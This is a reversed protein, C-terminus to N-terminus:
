RLRHNKFKKIWEFLEQEGKKLTLDVLTPQNPLVCEMFGREKKGNVWVTIPGEWYSIIGFNVECEKIIPQTKMVYNKVTIEWELEYALGSVPSKWAMGAPTFSARCSEQKNDRHLLYAYKKEKYKICVLETDNAMQVSFWVWADEDASNLNFWQRDHWAKGEVRDKGVYGAAKLNTYSFYYTKKKGLDVFGGGGEFLAKKTQECSLDLFKNKIRMANGQRAIEYDASNNQFLGHYDIFLEKKQFSDKSLIVMPLTETHIKRNTLDFLISHSFFLEKIPLGLFPVKVKDGKVRFLCNMFAYRRKGNLFGNFYWWEGDYSRHISEDKPLQIRPRM